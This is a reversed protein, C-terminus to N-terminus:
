WSRQEIADILADEYRTMQGAVDTFREGNARVEARNMWWAREMADCVAQVKDGSPQVFVGGQGYQVIDASGGSAYAVVPTGSLLAEVTTLGFSEIDSLQLFLRANRFAQLKKDGTLVDEYQTNEAGSFPLRFGSVMAGGMVLRCGFRACAEMALLPRKLEAIAGVYLAYDGPTDNFPYDAAPLANHIIKARAFRGDRGVMWARQGESLLVPNRAYNQYNDHFVNVVPLLPFLSSLAHVHGNDLFVEFPDSGHTQYAAQAVQWEGEYGRADLQVLQGEFRSGTRAFLTVDHGRYLLGTAIQHTMRGLGHGGEFPTPASTDGLVAIRM